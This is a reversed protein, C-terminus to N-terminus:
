GTPIVWSQTECSRRGGSVKIHYHRPDSFTSRVSYGVNGNVSSFRAFLSHAPNRMNALTGINLTRNVTTTLRVCRLRCHPSEYRYPQRILFKCDLSPLLKGSDNCLLFSTRHFWDVLTRNRLPANVYWSQYVRQTGVQGRRLMTTRSRETSAERSCSCGHLM